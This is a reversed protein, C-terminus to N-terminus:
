PYTACGEEIFPYLVGLAIVVPVLWANRDAGLGKARQVLGTM